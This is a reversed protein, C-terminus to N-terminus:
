YIKYGLIHRLTITSKDFIFYSFASVLFELASFSTFTCLERNRPEAAQRCFGAIHPANRSGSSMDRSTLMHRELPQQCM